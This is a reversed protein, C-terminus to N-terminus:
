KLLNQKLTQYSLEEFSDIVLDCLPEIVERPNSTTLGVVFAGSARGANLGHISDEFVVTRQPCGGLLEMGKIFCEPDPKSKVFDGSVLIKDMIEILEPHTRRVNEMKKANSSTVVAMPVGAVKLESIFEWAGPTYEYPMNREFEDIVGEIEEIQKSTYHSFYRDFITVISVGKITHGFNDENVYKRGVSNWFETYHIETNMVVGDFDFLAVFNEM